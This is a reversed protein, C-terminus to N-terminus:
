FTPSRNQCTGLKQYDSNVTARTGSSWFKELVAITSIELVHFDHGHLSHGPFANTSSAENTM